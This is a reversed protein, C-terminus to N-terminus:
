ESIWELADDPVGIAEFYAGMTEDNYWEGTGFIVFSVDQIYYHENKYNLIKEIQEPTLQAKNIVFSSSSSNSVFGNRIKM